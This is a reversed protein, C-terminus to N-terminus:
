PVSFLIREGFFIRTAFCSLVPSTTTSRDCVKRYVKDLPRQRGLKPHSASIPHHKQPCRRDQRAPGTPRTQSPQCVTLSAVWRRRYRRRRPSIKTTSNDNLVISQRRTDEEHQGERLGNASYCEHYPRNCESRRICLKHDIVTIMSRADIDCCSSCRM